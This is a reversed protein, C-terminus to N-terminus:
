LRILPLLKIHSPFPSEVDLKIDKDGYTASSTKDVAESSKYFDMVNHTNWYTDPKEPDYAGAVNGRALNEPNTYALSSLCRWQGKYGDKDSFSKLKYGGVDSITFHETETDWSDGKFTSSGWSRKREYTYVYRTSFQAKGVSSIPIRAESENLKMLLNKRRQKAEAHKKLFAYKDNNTTLSEYESPDDGININAAGFTHPVNDIDYYVYGSWNNYELEEITGRIGGYMPVYGKSYTFEHNAPMNYSLLYTIAQEGTKKACFTTWSFKKKGKNAELNNIASALSNVEDVTDFLNCISVYVVVASAGKGSIVSRGNYDLLTSQILDNYIDGNFLYLGVYPIPTFNYFMQPSNDKFCYNLLDLSNKSVFNNNNSSVVVKKKKNKLLKSGISYTVTQVENSTKFHSDYKVENFLFNRNITDADSWRKHTNGGNNADYDYYYTFSTITTDDGRTGENTSFLKHKHYTTETLHDYNYFHLQVSQFNKNIIAGFQKEFIDKPPPLVTSPNEEDIWKDSTFYLVEKPNSSIINEATYEQKIAVPASINGTNTGQPNEGSVQWDLGRIFRPYKETLSFLNPLHIGDSYDVADNGNKEYSIIQTNQLAKYVNDYNYNKPVDNDQESSVNHNNRFKYKKTTADIKVPMGNKTKFLNENTPNINPFNEFSIKSGNCLLYDKALSHTPTLTAMTCPTILGNNHYEKLLQAQDKLSQEDNDFYWRETGKDGTLDWRRQLNQAVQRCRHFWYRHFPMAHYMILGPQVGAGMLPATENLFGYTLENSSIYSGNPEGKGFLANKISVEDTPSNGLNDYRGQTHRVKGRLIEDLADWILKDFRIWSLKTIYNYDRVEQLKNSPHLWNDKLADANAANESFSHGDYHGLVYDHTQLVPIEQGKNNFTNIFRDNVKVRHTSTDDPNIPFNNDFWSKPQKLLNQRVQEHRPLSNDSPNFLHLKTSDESGDYTVDTLLENKNNFYLEDNPSEIPYLLIQKANIRGQLTHTAGGTGITLLSYKKLKIEDDMFDLKITSRAIFKKSVYIDRDVVTAVNVIDRSEYTDAGTTRIRVEQTFAKPYFRIPLRNGDSDSLRVYVPSKSTIVGDGQKDIVGDIDVLTNLVSTVDDTDKGHVSVPSIRLIGMYSDYVEKQAVNRVNFREAM